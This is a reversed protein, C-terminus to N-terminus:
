LDLDDATQRERSEAPASAANGDDDDETAIGLVAGLSYRRQYTIASGLGQPDNKSPTMNFTEEMWEGSEHMVRTTLGNTGSPFQVYTLGNNVLPQKTADIIAGLSAYTNKFHPNVADKKVTGVEKHFAILAKTIQAINPSTNMHSTLSTSEPSRFPVQATVRGLANRM